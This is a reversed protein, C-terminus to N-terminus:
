GILSGSIRTVNQGKILSHINFSPNKLCVISCIKLIFEFINLVKPM